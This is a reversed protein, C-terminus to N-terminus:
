DPTVIFGSHPAPTVGIYITKIGFKRSVPSSTAKLEGQHHLMYIFIIYTYVCM